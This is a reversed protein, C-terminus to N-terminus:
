QNVVPVSSGAPLPIMGGGIALGIGAILAGGLLVAPLAGGLSGAAGAADGGGLSGGGLSGTGPLPFQEDDAPKVSIAASARFEGEGPLTAVVPVFYTGVPLTAPPEVTLSGDAGLSAWQPAAPGLAYTTGAPIEMPRGGFRFVPAPVVAKDGRVVSVAEPYSPIPRTTLTTSSTTPADTASSVTSTAPTASTATTPNVAITTPSTPAPTQAGAIGLPSGNGSAGVGVVLGAALTVVFGAGAVTAASRPLSPSM